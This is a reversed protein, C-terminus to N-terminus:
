GGHARTSGSRAIVGAPTSATSWSTAATATVSRMAADRFSRRCRLTAAAPPMMSKSKWREDPSRRARFMSAAFPQPKEREIAALMRRAEDPKGDLAVVLAREEDLFSTKNKAAAGRNIAAMAERSKRMSAENRALYMYLDGDDPDALIGKSAAGAATAYDGMMWGNLAGMKSVLTSM